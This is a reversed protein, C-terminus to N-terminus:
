KNLIQTCSWDHLVVPWSSCSEGNFTCLAGTENRHNLSGTFNEAKETKSKCKICCTNFSGATFTIVFITLSWLFPLTDLLLLLICHCKLHFVQPFFSGHVFYVSPYTPSLDQMFDILLTQEECVQSMTVPFTTLNTITSMCLCAGFM